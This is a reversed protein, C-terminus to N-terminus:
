SDPWLCMCHCVSGGGGLAWKSVKTEKPFKVKPICKVFM